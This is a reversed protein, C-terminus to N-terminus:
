LTRSKTPDDHAALFTVRGATSRLFMLVPEREFVVQVVGVDARFPHVRHLDVAHAGPALVYQLPLDLVFLILHQFRGLSAVLTMLLGDFLRVVRRTILARTVQGNTRLTSHRPDLPGLFALRRRRRRDISVSWTSIIRLVVAVTTQFVSVVTRVAVRM